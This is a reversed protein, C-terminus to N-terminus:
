AFEERFFSIHSARHLSEKLGPKRLAYILRLPLARIISLTLHPRSRGAKFVMESLGTFNM